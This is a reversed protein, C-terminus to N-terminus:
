NNMRSFKLVDRLVKDAGAQMAKEVVSRLRVETENQALIDDQRRRAAAAVKQAALESEFLGKSDTRFRLDDWSGSIVAPHPSQGSGNSTPLLRYTLKQAGIEVEGSGRADTLDGDIALDNNKLVGDEIVYSGTVESFITPNGGRRRATEANQFVEALDFGVLEGDTLRFAGSGSIRRMMAEVKPGSTLFKLQLDAIAILKDVGAIDALFPRLQIGFARLDASMSVGSRSNLVYNGSLTGSYATVEHLTLQLRGEDLQARLRTPGLRAFGLEVSPASFAIDADFAGLGILDLPAQSWGSTVVGEFPGTEGFLSSFDQAQAALRATLEIRAGLDLDFEGNAQNRDLRFNGRRLNIQSGGSFTMDGEVSIRNALGQLLDKDLEMLRLIRPLDTADATVAINAVLPAIGARGEARVRGFSSKVDFSLDSVAGSSFMDISAVEASLVIKEGRFEASGKISARGQEGIATVGLNISYLVFGSGAKRDAYSLSGGSIQMDKFSLGEFLNHSGSTEASVARRAIQWNMEGSRSRELSIDANTLWLKRLSVAGTILPGLKVGVLLSEASVMTEATAWEANGITVADAKIGLVPYFVPTIEGAIRVERGTRASLERVAVQAIREAPILAIVSVLMIVLLVAVSTLRYVWRMASAKQEKNKATLSGWRSCVLCNRWAVPCLTKRM